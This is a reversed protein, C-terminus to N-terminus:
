VEMRKPSHSKRWSIVLAAHPKLLPQLEQSGVSKVQHLWDSHKLEQCCHDTKPHPFLPRPNM